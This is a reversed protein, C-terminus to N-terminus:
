SVSERPLRDLQMLQKSLNVCQAILQERPLSEDLANLAALIRNDKIALRNAKVLWRADLVLVAVADIYFDLEAIRTWWLRPIEVLPHEHESRIRRHLYVLHHLQWLCRPYSLWKSPVFAFPWALITIGFFLLAVQRLKPILAAPVGIFVSWCGLAIVAVSFVIASSCSAVLMISRVKMELTPSGLLTRAAVVLPGVFIVLSYGHLLGMYILEGLYRPVVRELPLASFAVGGAFFVLTLLIMSTIAAYELIKTHSQEIRLAIFSMEMIYHYCATLALFSLLWSLSPIHTVEGIFLWMKDLLFFSALAITWGIGCLAIVRRDVNGKRRVVIPTYYFAVGLGFFVAVLSILQGDPM